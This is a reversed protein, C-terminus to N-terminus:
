LTEFLANSFGPYIVFKTVFFPTFLKGDPTYYASIKIVLLFM